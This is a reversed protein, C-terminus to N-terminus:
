QMAERARPSPDFGTGTGSVTFEWSSPLGEDCRERIRVKIDTEPSLVSAIIHPHSTPISWKGSEPSVDYRLILPVVFSFDSMAAFYRGPCLASGGGFARYSSAALKSPAQANGRVFRYPDFEMASPGWVSPDSHLEAAPILVTSGKKLVYKQSLLTDQLVMRGAANTSRIRLVERFLSMLLPCSQVAQTLDLRRLQAEVTQGHGISIRKSLQQRLENLLEPTSYIYTLMWFATPATNALAAMLVSIELRAVDELSM